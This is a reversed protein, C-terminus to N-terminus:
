PMNEMALSGLSVASTRPKRQLTGLFCKHVGTEIGNAGIKRGREFEKYFSRLTPKADPENEAM